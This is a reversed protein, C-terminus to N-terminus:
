KHQFINPLSYQDSKVKHWKIDPTISWDAQSFLPCTQDPVLLRHCQKYMHWSSSTRVPRTWGHNVTTFFVCSKNKQPLFVCIEPENISLFLSLLLMIEFIPSTNFCVNLALSQKNSSKYTGNECVSSITGGNKKGIVPVGQVIRHVPSVQGVGTPPNCITM